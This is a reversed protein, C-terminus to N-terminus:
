VISPAGRGARMPAAIRAAVYRKAARAATELDDGRGLHCAIATSLACGTGHVAAGGPIREGELPTIADGVALRDVAARDDLHGGKLLVAAGRSALRLTAADAARSDPIPRKGLIEAEAVNPTILTLHPLLAAFAAEADGRYLPDAGATARLVPDWVVPAATLELASAIHRAIEGSGLAGIKIAAVEMDSLLARLQDGVLEPDVPEARRLGGSNQETLVTIVGAARLGLDAAVRADALVGAGGSPDLGAIALLTTSVRSTM